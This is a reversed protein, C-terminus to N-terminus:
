KVLRVSHEKLLWDVFKNIGEEISTKPSYQLYKKAKSIDASTIMVDGPQEPCNKIIAKKGIKNELMVILASLSITQSEGLNIVEYGKLNNIAGILGSVIDEIYTYDRKTSGDGFMKIPKQNLINKAFMHIAMEPRQRPGYATFFRLCFIDFAYLHHYTHCLLEGAKKTAAYPSIPYDVNDTESFPIKKNNGYVSSSSAFIMKKIDAKRMAELLTLTGNINVDYYLDPKAISPRVGARAAIHIVIDVKNDSFFADLFKQDRIDSEILLYNKNSLANNINQRKILPDYFTDFNDLCIVSHNQELLKDTVSSGIFGAGGTILIKM